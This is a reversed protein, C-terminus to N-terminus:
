WIWDAMAARIAIEIEVANAARKQLLEPAVTLGVFGKAAGNAQGVGRGFGGMDPLLYIRKLTM